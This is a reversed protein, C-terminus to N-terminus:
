DGRGASAFRRGVDDRRSLRLNRIQRGRAEQFLSDLDSTFNKSTVRRVMASQTTSVSEAQRTQSVSPSSEMVAESVEFLTDLGGTFKKKSM